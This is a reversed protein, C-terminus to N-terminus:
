NGSYKKVLTVILSVLLAFSLISFLTSSAIINATQSGDLVVGAFQIMKMCKLAAQGEKGAAKFAETADQGGNQNIIKTITPGYYGQSFNRYNTMDYVSGEVIVWYSTPPNHIQTIERRTYGMVGKFFKHNQVTDFYPMSNEADHGWSAGYYPGPKPNGDEQFGECLDPHRPFIDTADKGIYDDIFFKGPSHQLRLTTWDWVKGHVAILLPNGDTGNQLSSPPLSFAQLKAAPFVPNKHFLLLVASTILYALLALSVISVGIAAYFRNQRRRPLQTTGSGFARDPAHFTMTEAFRDKWTKPPIVTKTFSESLNQELQPTPVLETKSTAIDGSSIISARKESEMFLHLLKM